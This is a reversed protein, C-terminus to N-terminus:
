RPLQGHSSSEKIIRKGADWDGLEILTAHVVRVGRSKSGGRTKRLRGAAGIVIIIGQPLDAAINKCAEIMRHHM